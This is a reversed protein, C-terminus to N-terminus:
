ADAFENRMREYEARIGALAVTALVAAQQETEESLSAHYKGVLAGVLRQTAEWEIQEWYDASM